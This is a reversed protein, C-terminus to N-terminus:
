KIILKQGPKIMDSKMKNARKISDVTTKYKSAIVSLSDGSKVIYTKTSQTSTDKGKVMSLFQKHNWDM